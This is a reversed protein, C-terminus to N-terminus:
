SGGTFLTQQGLWEAVDQPLLYKDAMQRLVARQKPTPWHSPWAPWRRLLTDLVNAEFTTIEHEGKDLMQVIDHDTISM